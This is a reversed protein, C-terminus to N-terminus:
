IFTDGVLTVMSYIDFVNLCFLERGDGMQGQVYPPSHIPSNIIPSAPGRSSRGTEHENSHRRLTLIDHSSSINVFPNSGLSLEKM